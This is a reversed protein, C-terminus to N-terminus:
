QEQSLQYIHRLIEEDIKNLILGRRELVLRATDLAQNIDYNKFGLAGGWSYSPIFSRPFGAGFINASVGVVTGTNFMTNIGSKSHDGMILGCFQLGTRIFKQQPYNWVKVEAYNNKLNSNNTDAGLNCWEGIVSNGLFGDHAKNSYGFIVVNNLEGGVKCNPGITTAGYVKAGMKLTSEKCLAFPARVMCGEMIEAKPGIYVDGDNTNLISAEVTATPHIFIRGNGIVRNTESIPASTAGETVIDFDSKLEIYNLKFINWPYEIERINNEYEFKEFAETDFSSYQVNESQTAVAIWKGKHFLAQNQNLKNIANVLNKDPLVGSRIVITEGDPATPYKKQLYEPVIQYGKRSLFHEWKEIITIIGVRIDGIGRTFTLPLLNDRNPADHLCFTKMTLNTTPNTDYTKKRM